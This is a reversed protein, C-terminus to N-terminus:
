KLVKQRTTTTKEVIRYIDEPIHTQHYPLKARAKEASSCTQVVFWREGSTSAQIEYTTKKTTM